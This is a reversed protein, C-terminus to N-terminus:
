LSLGPGAPPEQEKVRYMRVINLQRQNFPVIEVVLPAIEDPLEIFRIKRLNTKILRDGLANQIYAAHAFYERIQPIDQLLKSAEKISSEPLSFANAFPTGEAALLFRASTAFL